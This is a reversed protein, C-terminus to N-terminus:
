AESLRESQVAARESGVGLRRRLRELARSLAVRVTAARLNLVGAIEEHSMQEFFRLTLITQERPKLGLIAQYLTPWDFADLRRDASDTTDVVRVAGTRAASELLERRRRTRRVYANVENTAVRYLWRRFDEETTGPFDRVHTAVRLFVESTVDEAVARVFLRRLCYRLVDPYYLDYLRGFAERDTPARIVLDDMPPRQRDNRDSQRMLDHTM